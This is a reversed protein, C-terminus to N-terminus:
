EKCKKKWQVTIKLMQNASMMTLLASLPNGKSQFDKTALRKLASHQANEQCPILVIVILYWCATKTRRLRLIIHGLVNKHLKIGSLLNKLRLIVNINHLREL